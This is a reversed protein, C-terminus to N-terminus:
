GRRSPAHMPLELRLRAGGEPRNDASLTGGVRQVLDRSIALGLGTGKDPAKTTFFAEFLRPLVEAPFGPGNDEVLLTVREGHALGRVRVEGERVRAQELADGANVLLNLVVQALRGPIVFVELEEPVELTLRAVHKLRLSALRAADEVVEALLCEAPEETNMRSFGKLDSVIGGIRELGSQAEACVEELDGRHGEPMRARLEELVYGLNARVFALPNNIEHMVDAALRGVTALKDSQIRHHEAVALKEVAERRERELRAEKLAAQARRLHGAGYVGFASMGAIMGALSLASMPEHTKWMLLIFCGVACTIGTYVTPWADRPRSLAMALPLAPVIHLHPSAPGGTLSILGLYCLGCFVSNLRILRAQRLEDLRNLERNYLVTELAWLARLLLPGLAFRGLALVDMLYFGLISAAIRQGVRIGNDAEAWEAVSPTSGEERAASAVRFDYGGSITEM